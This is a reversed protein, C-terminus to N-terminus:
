YTLHHELRWSIIEKEDQSLTNPFLEQLGLQPTTNQTPLDVINEMSIEKKYYAKNREQM